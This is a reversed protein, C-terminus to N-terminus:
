QRVLRATARSGDIAECEIVFIGPSLGALDLELVPGFIRQTTVVRGDAAFVRLTGGTYGAGDLQVVVVGDTPNPRLQIMASSAEGMGTSFEAVLVSPETIVPPNFDFFINAINEITTGPLVPLRPRIRFQVLGHSRLENVNSDPLQINPFLFRLVGQGTLQPTCNHSTLLLDFSGPDLTPPLTDTIVVNFATDTGTNQFRITYNVWEDQDIYYLADSLQSSTVATKDNPDYSGTVTRTHLVSNNTLDAEPQAISVSATLQLDTGLLGPDPPVMFQVSVSRSGFSGIQPLTWTITNGVVSSPVPVASTYSLVPDFTCTLTVTGTGGPTNHEVNIWAPYAFGPRAFASGMAIEVDRTVLATDGIERTLTQGNFVLEVPIPAGVCHEQVDPATHTLTYSGTPLNLQYYGDTGTLTTYGGPEVTIVSQPVRAEMANFQCNENDDMYVTGRLTACPEALAPVNFWVTDACSGPFGVNFYDEMWDMGWPYRPYIRLGYDGPSLTSLTITQAYQGFYNSPPNITGYNSNGQILEIYYGDQNPSVSTQFTVGGYANGPCAPEVSLIEVEPYAPPQPITFQITGPCGTADTFPLQVMTGPPPWSGTAQIYIGQQWSESGNFHFVEYPGNITIPAMGTAYVSTNGLMRFESGMIGGPCNPLGAAGGYLPYQQLVHEDTAQEGLGDTVTVSYTGAALGTITETTAGNSWQFSFPPTGGSVWASLAGVQYTCVTPADENIQVEIAWSRSPVFLVLLAILTCAPKTTRM